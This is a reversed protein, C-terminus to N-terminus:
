KLLKYMKIGKIVQNLNNLFHEVELLSYFTKSKKHKYNTNYKKNLNCPLNYKIFNNM